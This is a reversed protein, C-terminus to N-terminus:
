SASISSVAPCPRQHRAAGGQLRELPLQFWFTSGAGVESSVGITGGMLEVLHKCIALGPLGTGGYRRTISSDAQSFKQFLENRM